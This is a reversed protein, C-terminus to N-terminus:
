DPTCWRDVLDRDGGPRLRGAARARDVLSAHWGVYAAYDHVHVLIRAAAAAAVHHPEVAGGTRAHAGLLGRAARGLSRPEGTSATAREVLEGVVWGLDWSAPGLAVEDTVLVTAPGGAPDPYVTQSGPAGLLTVTPAALAAGDLDALLDDLGGSGLVGTVAELARGADGVGTESWARLRSLGSPEDLGPVPDAAHLLGLTTGLDECLRRLPEDRMGASLLPALSAPGPVVHHWAGDVLAGASARCPPLVSRAVDGLAAADSTSRDPRDAGARRVLVHEGAPTRALTTALYGTTTERLTEVTM